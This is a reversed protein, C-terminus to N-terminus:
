QAVPVQQDLPRRTEGLRAGDLSQGMAQLAFKLTHLECGIHQGGIQSAGVNVPGLLTAEFELAPRQEVIQYEGVLDVASRSLHM